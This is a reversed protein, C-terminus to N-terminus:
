RASCTRTALALFALTQLTKGLGMDDALLAGRHSKNWRHQLWQLGDDQHEFIEKTKLCHPLFIEQVDRTRLNDQFTKGRLTIKSLRSLKKTVLRRMM